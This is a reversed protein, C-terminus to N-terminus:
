NREYVLVGKSRITDAYVSPVKELELIDLPFETIREAMRELEILDEISKMGELAIDIDSYDTFMKKDLLSGWQYIRVPNFRQIIMNIISKYDAYAKNFLQEREREVIDRRKRLSERAEEINFSKMNVEEKWVSYVTKPNGRSRNELTLIKSRKGKM